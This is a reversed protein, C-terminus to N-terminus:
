RPLSLPGLVRFELQNKLQDSRRSKFEPGRAGWALASGSQAVSRGITRRIAGCCSSRHAVDYGSKGGLIKAGVACAIWGSDSCGAVSGRLPTFATSFVKM